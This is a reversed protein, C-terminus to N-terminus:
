SAGIHTLLRWQLVAPERLLQAQLYFFSLQILMKKTHLLVCQAHKWCLLHTCSTAAESVFTKLCRHGAKRSGLSAMTPHKRLLSRQSWGSLQGEAQSDRRILLEHCSAPLGEQVPIFRDLRAPISHMGYSLAQLHASAALKM